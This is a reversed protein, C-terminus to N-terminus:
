IQKCAIFRQVDTMGHREHQGLGILCGLVGSIEDLHRILSQRYDHREILRDVRIRRAHALTLVTPRIFLRGHVVGIGGL